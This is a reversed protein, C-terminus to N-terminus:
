CHTSAKTQAAIEEALLNLRTLALREFIETQGAEYQITSSSVLREALWRYQGLSISVMIGVVAITLIATPIVYRPINRANM